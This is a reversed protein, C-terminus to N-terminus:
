HSPQVQIELVQGPWPSDDPRPVEFAATPTFGLAEYQKVLARDDGGYCDVRLLGIGRGEAEARADAILAAGIGSGKRARDTVLLRVYLESQDVPPAYAPPVEALVCIGVTRADEDVAVRMLLDRAYEQVHEVRAPRGSWSDSGWQGTRGREVLWVMAADLLALTDAIDEPGGTRIKM